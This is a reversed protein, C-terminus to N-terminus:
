WKAPEKLRRFWKMTAEEVGFRGAFEPHDQLKLDWLAAEVEAYEIPFERRNRDALVPVEGARIMKGFKTATVTVATKFQPFKEGSFTLRDWFESGVMTLWNAGKIADLVCPLTLNLDQVDLGWYRKAWAYITDFATFKRWPDFVCSYGAHGSLFDLSNALGLALEYVKTHNTNPPFLVQCFSACQDVDLDDPLVGEVNFSWGEVLDDDRFAVGHDLREDQGELYPALSELRDPKSLEDWFFMETTKIFRRKDSPCVRQYVEWAAVVDAALPPTKLYLTLDLGTRCLWTEGAMTKM